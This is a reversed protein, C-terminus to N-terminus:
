RISGAALRNLKERDAIRIDGRSLQLAGENELHKLMRSVVERATGLHRAVAEHTLHVPRGGLDSEELLFAALRADMRKFLVQDLLWMVNSFRDAMLEGTFNAAPASEEMLKQYIGAPIHILRVDSAAEVFVDCQMGRLICSASFLCIDRELLRYLTIERGEDSLAYVRLQGSEVILLGICDQGGRHLATGKEYTRREAAQELAAQWAPSLQKWFPFYGELM